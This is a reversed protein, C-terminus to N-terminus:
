EKRYYQCEYADAKLPLGPAWDIPEGMVQAIDEAGPGDLPVECIIEDHVHFVIPWGLAEVRRMAEALCDRAIAQVINECFKPGYSEIQGWGGREQIIGEYIISDQVLKPRVYSLERGSPLGLRMFPGEKRLTMQHPLSMRRGGTIVARVARDILWWYKTIHPNARRWSDVLPQLENEQLGMELAGMSKLAGVAGGYGLALEAIKGKHRMPDGKTVSGGPLHFMQEASAEYIKGHTNFVGLRWAEDAVWALVRAEIASFDSVVFKHGPAPVFATRILQSLTDAPEFLCELSSLDRDKVLERALDLDRDLLKNQPLNQMQVLRGAWRGTRNAGYFQTLGRIRSDRCASATMAKYKATSTKGLEKRIKLFEEVKEAGSVQELVAAMQKKELSKIELGTEEKIWAKIQAVSSPNDMGTLERAEEKLRDKIIGDITTANAALDLDVGVGRDNIRQDIAWLDLDRQDISYGKLIRRIEREAVVDQGNYEIYKTWRDPDDWPMNRTRGGNAKTPRCPKSFFQILAKGEKDKQKDEPLGLAAGVDGLSRPLGLEQALIMTDEWEEPPLEIGFYASLCTREFNANYATKLVFPDTLDKLVGSLYDDTAPVKNVLDLVKVPEDDYAYGLLIIEFEPDEAYKYVGAKGLDTASYTEVDVSLTKKM